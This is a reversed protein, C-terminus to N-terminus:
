GEISSINRVIAKGRGVAGIYDGKLERLQNIYSHLQDAISLKQSSDLSDWVKDLRKGPMYDRVLAVVKGDELRIDHAKPM